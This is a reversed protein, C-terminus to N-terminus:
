QPMAIGVAAAITSVLLDTEHSVEFHFYKRLMAKGWFYLAMSVAGIAQSHSAIWLLM